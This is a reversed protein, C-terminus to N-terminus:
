AVAALRKERSAFYGFTSHDCDGNYRMEIFRFTGQQVQEESAYSSVRGNKQASGPALEAGSGISMFRVLSGDPPRVGCAFATMRVM